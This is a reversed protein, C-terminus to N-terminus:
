LGTAFTSFSFSGTSVVPTLAGPTAMGGSAETAARPKIKQFLHPLGVFEKRIMSRWSTWNLSEDCPDFTLKASSLTHHLRSNSPGLPHELSEIPPLVGCRASGASASCFLAQSFGAVSSPSPPHLLQAASRDKALRTSLPPRTKRVKLRRNSELNSTQAPTLNRQRIKPAMIPVEHATPPADDAGTVLVGPDELWLFSGRGRRQRGEALVEERTKLVRNGNADLGTLANFVMTLFRLYETKCIRETWRDCLQFWCKFFHPRTLADFGQSDRNWDDEIIEKVEAETTGEILLLCMLHMWEQYEKKEVQGNNDADVAQWLGGLLQLIEPEFKLSARRLLSKNSSLDRSMDRADQGGESHEGESHEGSNQNSSRRSDVCVGGDEGGEDHNFEQRLTDMLVGSELKNNVEVNNSGHVTKRAKPGEDNLLFSSAKQAQELARQRSVHESAPQKLDEKLIALSVKDVISKPLRQFVNRHLVLCDTPELAKITAPNARRDVLSHDGCVQGSQIMTTDKSFQALCGKEVILLRNGLQGTRAAVQATHYTVLGLSQLILM